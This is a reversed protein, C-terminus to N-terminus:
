KTTVHGKEKSGLWNGLKSTFTSLFILNLAMAAIAATQM